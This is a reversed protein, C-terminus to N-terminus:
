ESTSTLLDVRPDQEDDHPSSPGEDDDPSSPREQTQPVPPLPDLRPIATALGRRLAMKMEEQRSETDVQADNIVKVCALYDSRQDFRLKLLLFETDLPVLTVLSPAKNVRLLVVNDDPATYMSVNENLVFGVQATIPSPARGCELVNCVLLREEHRVEVVAIHATTWDSVGCISYSAKGASLAVSPIDFWSSIPAETAPM